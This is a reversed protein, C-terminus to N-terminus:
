LQRDLARGAVPGITLREPRPQTSAIPDVTAVLRAGSIRRRAEVRERGILGLGVVAVRVDDGEGAATEVRIDPDRESM